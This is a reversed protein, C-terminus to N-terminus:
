QTCFDDDDHNMESKRYDGKMEEKLIHPFAEEGVRILQFRMTVIVLYISFCIYFNAYILIQVWIEQIYRKFTIQM